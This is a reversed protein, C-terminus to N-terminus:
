VNFLFHCIDGDQMVYDRGKTQVKGKGRAAQESGAAVLDDYKIVEVRIFGRELDTHIKGAAVPATSGKRITWARVEDEGVTYFSMLGLADYAAANVRDLGSSQLKMSQLYEQRDAPNDMAMIEQEIRASITLTGAGFSGTVRDEDVNYVALVPILTLLELSRLAASEEDQLAVDALRTGNEMAQMCKTLAREECAQETTQGSRKEKAIRLLRKEVIEMDALMLEGLIHSADRAADVSGAPHYVHDAHFARVVLCLLDCRRAAELWERAGAGEVVDPCLMFHNEAYVKREPKCIGTLVDVREDRIRAVGEVAEGPKRSEPAQRGTLLAFLTRKGAQALGLLAINM